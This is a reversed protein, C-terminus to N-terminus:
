VFVTALTQNKLPTRNELLMENQVFHRGNEGFGKSIRVFHPWQTQIALPETKSHDTGYSYSHGVM